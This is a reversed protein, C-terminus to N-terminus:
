VNEIPHSFQLLFVSSADMSRSVDCILAIRPKRIKGDPKALELVTGGYQLSRRLSRRPDIRGGRHTPRYRRSKRMAIKRAIAMCARAVQALEDPSFDSFDKEVLVATSSYAEGSVQSPPQEGSASSLSQTQNQRLPALEDS